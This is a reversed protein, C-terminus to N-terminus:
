SQKHGVVVLRSAKEDYPSGDFGGYVDVAAFGCERLLGSLEAASYIWHSVTFECREGGRLLIWRNEMWSWDKRVHHEALFLVGEHEYWNRAQWVRALVEKGKVDILLAGGAKLSRYANCLVQRNEDPDEFFGFSTFLNLIADFSDPRCFVRMDQQVFEISLGEQYAKDRALELHSATTDVGTVHFGRRALEVAHRGPGCCLDLVDAGPRLGLLGLLQEVEPPAAALRGPDFMFPAFLEWFEDSEHWADM